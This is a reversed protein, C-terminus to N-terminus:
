MFNWVQQAASRQPATSSSAHITQIAERLTRSVQDEGVQQQM